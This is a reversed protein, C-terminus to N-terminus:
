FNIRAGVHHMQGNERIIPKGHIKSIGKPKGHLKKKKKKTKQLPM